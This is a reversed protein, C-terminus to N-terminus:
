EKEEKKSFKKLIFIIAAHWSYYLLLIPAIIPWVLSLLCATVIYDDRLELYKYPKVTDSYDYYDIAVLVLSFIFAIVFYLVIYIVAKSM